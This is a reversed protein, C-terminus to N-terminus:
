QEGALSNVELRLTTRPLAEAIVAEGCCRLGGTEGHLVKRCDTCGARPHLDSILAELAFFDM